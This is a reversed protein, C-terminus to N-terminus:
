AYTEISLFGVLIGDTLTGASNRTNLTLTSSSTITASVSGEFGANSVLVITDKTSFSNLPATITYVGVGTRSSSIIGYTDKTVNDISLDDTTAQSIMGKFLNVPIKTSEEGDNIITFTVVWTSNVYLCDIQIAKKRLNDPISKGFVTFGDTGELRGDYLFRYFLGEMLTGSPSISIAGTVTIAAGTSSTIYYESWVESSDVTTILGLTSIPIINFNSYTAM